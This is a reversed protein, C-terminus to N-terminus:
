LQQQHRFDFALLHEILQNRHMGFHQARYLAVLLLTRTRQEAQLLMKRGQMYTTRRGLGSFDMRRGHRMFAQLRGQLLEIHLGVQVQVAVEPGQHTRIRLPQTAHM